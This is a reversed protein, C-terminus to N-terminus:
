KDSRKPAVNSHTSHGCAQCQTIRVFGREMGSVRQTVLKEPGAGCRPCDEQQQLKPWALM